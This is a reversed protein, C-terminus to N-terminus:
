PGWGAVTSGRYPPDVPVRAPKANGEGEPKDNAREPLSRLYDLMWAADAAAEVEIKGEHKLNLNDEMGLAKWELEFLRKLAGPIQGAALEDVDMGKIREAVRARMARIMTVADDQSRELAKAMRERRRSALDSDHEAARNVWGNRTSWGSWQRVTGKRDKYQGERAAEVSRDIAPLDRYHLFADYAKALTSERTFTHAPRILVFTGLRPYM